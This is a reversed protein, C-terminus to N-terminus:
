LEEDADAYATFEHPATGGMGRPLSTAATGAAGAAQATLAPVETTAAGGATGAFRIGAFDAGAPTVQWRERRHRDIGKFQVRVILGDREAQRLLDFVEADRLKPYTPERNLLRAAHSRSTHATSIVEGRKSYEHILRLLAATDGRDDTGGGVTSWAADLEPIGDTPWVLRLPDRLKGINCKQHELLLAGDKDRSMFLRSRASNHWATSGSYGESNPGRDGRSTGKDVHALLLVAANRERAIRALARMFGRVRARDIESADFADSANDVILLSIDEAAMFERLREFTDTTVGERRGASAVESFLTPDHDTADLIFVRGDLDEVNVGMCRCVLRLRYRLLAAGDEGSFFCVKGQRTPIGFLPLGLAVAVCLMLALTSKGTGGHAALLTVHGAPVWGLLVWDPPPPEVRALDAIPVMAFPPGDADGSAADRETAWRVIGDIDDESLPDAPDFYRAAIGEVLLRIDDASMGRASRSAIFSKLKERRGDGTILLRGLMAVSEAFPDEGRGGGGSVSKGAASQATGAQRKGIAGDDLEDLLDIYEGQDPDNFTVLVRYETGEVQGYYYSQSLTFSEGALIGGLVGNIRAVLAARAGPRLPKSCLALVRWRPKDATHSPSTYILARIGAAKLKALGVEPQIAGGDYDGEIGTIQRVNADHRLSGKDSLVNGFIALKIWPCVAKSKFGHAKRLRDILDRWYGSQRRITAASADAFESWSILVAQAVEPAATM